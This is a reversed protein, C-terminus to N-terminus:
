IKISIGYQIATDSQTDTRESYFGGIKKIKKLEKVAASPPPKGFPRRLWGLLPAVGGSHSPFGQERTMFYDCFM